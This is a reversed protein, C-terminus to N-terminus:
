DREAKGVEVEVDLRLPTPFATETEAAPTETNELPFSLTISIRSVTVDAIGNEEERGEEAEVEERGEESRAEDDVVSSFM